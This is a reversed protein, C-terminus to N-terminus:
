SQGFSRFSPISASQEHRGGVGSPTPKGSRQGPKGDGQPLASARARRTVLGRRPRAEEEEWSALGRSSFLPTRTEQYEKAATPASTSGRGSARRSGRWAATASSPRAWPDVFVTKKGLQAAKFVARRAFRGWSADSISKALRHNKLMGSVNLKELILVDSEKFIRHVLKNQFDERQRKVHLHLRSLRRGLELRRKSGGHKRSLHRQIRRIKEESRRLFEPYEASTRDDFTAFKLLGMDAGRVREIPTGSLLRKELGERETVFIAYWGDAERKVTLRRVNGLLPRHVFVRVCGVGSLILGRPDLRFGSQPYTLSNYRHPKKWRPFRARREFFNRFSRHIRDGVNQVVQSHATQLEGDEKRAELALRRFRTKSTSKHEERYRRIEEAKLNNYLNCLLFLSRDLRKEQEPKPYLRYKFASLMKM